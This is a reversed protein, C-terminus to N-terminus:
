HQSQMSRRIYEQQDLMASQTATSLHQHPRDLAVLLLLVVSFSFVASLAIALSRRKSSLGTAYGAMAMSLVALGFLVIWIIGPLRYHITLTIRSEHLNILENVSSVLLSSKVSPHQNAFAAARGWLVNQLEESREIAREIQQGTGNELAEIRLTVYDHLLQRIEARDAEPLLDVRRYVTGIANAEDLAVQKAEHFRSQVAGFVMALMFALLSLSAAVLPGPKIEEEGSFRERRLVGARFGSEISLFTIMLTALFVVWLPVSDLLETVNM